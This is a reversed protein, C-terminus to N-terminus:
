KHELSILLPVIHGEQQGRLTFNVKRNDYEVKEYPVLDEGFATLARNTFNGQVKKMECLYHEINLANKSFLFLWYETGVVNDLKYHLSESPLLMTTNAGIHPSIKDSVPFLTTISPDSSSGALIYIYAGRDVETVFKYSSGSRQADRLKYAVMGEQNENGQNTKGEVNREYPVENDTVFTAFQVSVRGAMTVGASDPAIPLYAQYGYKTYENYDPYTMWFYGDEGWDKGYSNVIKFAGGFKNDDYGVVCVAHGTSRKNSDAPKWLGSEDEGGFLRKIWRWIQGFFGLHNFSPTTQFAIIVPTMEALAKKTAVVVSGQKDGLDFLRVYDMIRSDARALQPDNPNCDRYGKESFRAVGIERMYIMATDILSGNQCNSDTSDKIANYLFSPSFSLSDIKARDTIGRSVAELITRGYYASAFGVCTGFKGQHMVSPAYPSLDVRAPLAASATAQALYKQPVKEYSADDFNMGQAYLGSHVFLSFLLLFLQRM